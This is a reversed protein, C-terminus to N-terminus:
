ALAKFFENIIEKDDFHTKVGMIEQYTEHGKGAVLIVDGSKALMVATRIAEKRNVNSIIKAALSLDLDKLMDAIIEAPDENRPNDSTLIVKNSMKAAIAAMEPRKTKDRNGGAGVVTLISANVDKIDLITDLVNQLADPTHAYDVIATIDNASRITEFRGEVASLSSLAVLLEETEFGLECAAGYVATINSANFRGILRTWLEVGNIQLLMGQFHHELIKARYDAMGRISYDRKKARTNQLMVKGNKDDVNTLAFATEPLADFFAKKAHIYDIFTKHYDLHDHTLNTFIGGEFHLASVRHQHIAHSSVEMFCYACGLDVMTRLMKNVSLADATTHTAPFETGSVFNRITSLLGAKYGLKQVLNYLSTAITTKGNTGTVGVLKLEKSPHGYFAAAIQALALASNEVQIWCCTTSLIDPLTECVIASAGKSVVDSIYKHGDSLTGSVAVFLDNKSVVRSDFCVQNFETIDNSVVNVTNIENLIHNLNMM